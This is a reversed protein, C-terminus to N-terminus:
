WCTGMIHRVQVIVGLADKLVDPRAGAQLLPCPIRCEDSLQPPSLHKMSAQNWCYTLTPLMCHM